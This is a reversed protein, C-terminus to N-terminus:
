YEIKKINIETATISLEMYSRKQPSSVTAYRVGDGFAEEVSFDHRHGHISTTIQNNVMLAHFMDMHHKMQGDYPPIHSFPIVHDYGQDNIVEAALWDMQPAKESEITTNDFMVFKVNNFVFSYNLPGFMQRYVLEGNSLYDHNGVATVYPIRLHTMIAHFFKYEQLLGNETLDGTVIVFVYDKQQNIHVIAEQLKNFHYHPDSLVAIKFPRSDGTSLSRRM